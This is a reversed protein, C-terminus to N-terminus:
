GNNQRGLCSPSAEQEVAGHEIDGDAHDKHKQRDAEGGARHGFGDSSQELQAAIGKKLPDLVEEVVRIEVGQGRLDVLV